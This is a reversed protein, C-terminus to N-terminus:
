YVAQQRHFLGAEHWTASLTDLIRQTAQDASLKMLEAVSIKDGRATHSIPPFASPISGVKPPTIRVNHQNDVVYAFPVFFLSLPGESTIFAAVQVQQFFGSGDGKRVFWIPEDHYWMAFEFGRETAFSRVASSISDALLPIDVPGQYGVM